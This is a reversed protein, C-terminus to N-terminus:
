LLLETGFSPKSIRRFYIYYELFSGLIKKEVKRLVIVGIIFLSSQYTENLIQIKLILFLKMQINYTNKNETFHTKIVQKMWILHLDIYLEIM